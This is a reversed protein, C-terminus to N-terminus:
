AGSRVKKGVTCGNRLFLTMMAEGITLGADISPSYRLASVYEAVAFSQPCIVGGYIAFHMAGRVYASQMREPWTRFSAVSDDDVYKPMDAHAATTVVFILGLIVLGVLIGWVWDLIQDPRDKKM